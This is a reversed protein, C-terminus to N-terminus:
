SQGATLSPVSFANQHHHHHFIRPKKWPELVIPVCYDAPKTKPIQKEQLHKGSGEYM